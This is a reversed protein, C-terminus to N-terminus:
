SAEQVQKIANQLATYQRTPQNNRDIFGFGSFPGPDGRLVFPTVAVVQPNSWIHQLAYAYYSELWPLTARNAVWGTETIFVQFDQGTKTKLYKLEHEFGRLSNQATRQPSSSFGPNPYSHSNWVDIYSFVAPDYNYMQELYNFAELTRSSNPAALDMAAPLVVYNKGESHAWQATFALVQTYSAPDLRGGWEPAHNVENYVIIHRQDTPWELASLFDIQSTTEKRSPIKWAGNEFRTVLRVVPIIKKQRAQDFFTQWQNQKGLDDLSLPITVYQWHDNQGGPTILDKAMTLEDPQLIHMGLVSGSQALVPKSWSFFVLFALLFSLFQKM